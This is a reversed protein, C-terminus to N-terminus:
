DRTSHMYWGYALIRLDCFAFYQGNVDGQFTTINQTGAIDNYTGIDTTSRSGSQNFPMPVSFCPYHKYSLLKTPHSLLSFAIPLLLIIPYNHKKTVASTPSVLFVRLLILFYRKNWIFATHQIYCLFNYTTTLYVQPRSLIPVSHTFYVISMTLTLVRSNIPIHRSPTIAERPKYDYYRFLILLWQHLQRPRPRTENLERDM